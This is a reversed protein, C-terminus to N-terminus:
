RVEGERFLERFKNQASQILALPGSWRTAAYLFKLRENRCSDIKRRVPADDIATENTRLSNKRVHRGDCSRFAVRLRGKGDAQVEAAVLLCNGPLKAILDFPFM